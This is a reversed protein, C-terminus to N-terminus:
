QKIASLAASYDPQRNTRIADVEEKTLDGLTVARDLSGFDARPMSDVKVTPQIVLENFYLIFDLCEQWGAARAGQLAAEEVTSTQKTLIQNGLMQVYDAVGSNKLLNHINLTVDSVEPNKLLRELIVKQM